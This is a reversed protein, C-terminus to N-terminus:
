ELELKSFRVAADDMDKHYKHCKSCYENAVDDPHFSVLGCEPCKISKDPTPAPSPLIAGEEELQKRGVHALARGLTPWAEQDFMPGIVLAKHPIRLRLDVVVDGDFPRLQTELREVVFVGDLDRSLAAAVVEPDIKNRKSAM